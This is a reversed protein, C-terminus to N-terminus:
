GPGLWHDCRGSEGPDRDHRPTKRANSRGQRGRRGCRGCGGRRGHGSRRRRRGRRRGSRKRRWAVVGRDRPSCSARGGADGAASAVGCGEGLQRRWGRLDDRRRREALALCFRPACFPAPASPSSGPRKPVTSSLPRMKTRPSNSRVSAVTKSADPSVVACRSENSMVTVLTRGANCQCAGCFHSLATISTSTVCFGSM